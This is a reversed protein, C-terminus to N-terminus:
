QNTQIDHIVKLHPEIKDEWEPEMIVVREFLFKSDELNGRKYEARALWYIPYPNIKWKLTKEECYEALDDYKGKDYLGSAFHIFVNERSIWLRNIIRSILKLAQGFLLLSVIVLIAVLLQKVEELHTLIQNEM